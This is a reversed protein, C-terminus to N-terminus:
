RVNYGLLRWGYNLLTVVDIFRRDPTDGLLVVILRRGGRVAAAVLNAGAGPTTGTKVGIAGPYSGLLHNLNTWDHVYAGGAAVARYFRTHVVQALFPQRLLARAIWALDHATSYQGPTDLGHPTVFHSHTLHLRAVEANMQDAFAPVTGASADALTVAADNGSPLLMGYFVDRVRLHEGTAFGATTGVVAADPPVTVYRSLALDHVAVLATVMKATSAVLRETDPNLAYLPHGITDDLIYVAAASVAPASNYSVVRRTLTTTHLRTVKWVGHVLGLDDRQRFTRDIRNLLVIGQYTWETVSAHLQLVGATLTLLRTGDIHWAHVVTTRRRIDRTLGAIIRRQGTLAAGATATSLGPDCACSLSAARLGASRQVADRLAPELATATATLDPGAGFAIISQPHWGRGSGLAFLSGLLLLLTGAIFWPLSRRRQRPLPPSEGTKITV